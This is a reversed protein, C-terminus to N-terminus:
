TFHISPSKGRLGDPLFSLMEVSEWKAFSSPSLKSQVKGSWELFQEAARFVHAALMLFGHEEVTLPSQFSHFWMFIWPKLTKVCDYKDSHIALVALREATMPKEDLEKHHFIGLMTKMAFPDDDHLVITPRYSVAMQMGERFNSSLMKSFVPSALSLIKSSALFRKVNQSEVVLVVDGDPDLDHMNNLNRSKKHKHKNWKM